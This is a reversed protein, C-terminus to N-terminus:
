WNPGIGIEALVRGGPDYGRGALADVGLRERPVDLSQEAFMLPGPLDV